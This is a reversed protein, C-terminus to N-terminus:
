QDPRNEEEEKLLKRLLEMEDKSLKMGKDKRGILSFHVYRDPHYRVDKLLKDLDDSADVLKDHLTDSQVLKGLSGKGSDIRETIASLDAMSRKANKVASPINANALSDSVTAMNDVIHEVKQSKGELTGSFKELNETLGAIKKREDQVMEDL